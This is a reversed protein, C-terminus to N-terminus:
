EIIEGIKEIGHKKSLRYIGAPFIREHGTKTNLCTGGSTELTAKDTYERAAGDDGVSVPNMDDPRVIGKCTIEFEFLKLTVDNYESLDVFGDRGM